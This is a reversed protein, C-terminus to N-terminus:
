QNRANRARRLYRKEFSSRALSRLSDDPAIACLRDKEDDQYVGWTENNVSVDRKKEKSTPILRLLDKIRTNPPSQQVLDCALVEAWTEGHEAKRGREGAARGDVFLGWQSRMAARLVDAEPGDSPHRLYESCLVILRLAALDTESIKPKEEEAGARYAILRQVDRNALGEWPKPGDRYVVYLPPSGDILLKVRCANIAQGLIEATYRDPDLACEDESRNDLPAQGNIPRAALYRACTRRIDALQDGPNELHRLLDVWSM